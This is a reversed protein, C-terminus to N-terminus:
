FAFPALWGVRPWLKREFAIPLAFLAVLIFASEKPVSGARFGRHAALYWTWRREYLFHLWCVLAAIGFVFLLPETAGSLWM